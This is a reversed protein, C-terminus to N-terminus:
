SCLSQFWLAQLKIESGDNIHSIVEALNSLRERNKGWLPAILIFYLLEYLANLVSDQILYISLLNTLYDDDGDGDDGTACM